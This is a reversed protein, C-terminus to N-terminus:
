EVSGEGEVVPLGTWLHFMGGISSASAGSLRFTEKLMAEALDLSAEADSLVLEDYCSTDALGAIRHGGFEITHAQSRFHVLENRRERLKAFGEAPDKQWAFSKGLIKPPWHRLKHDLGKPRSGDTPYLDEELLARFKAFKPDSVLTQFYINIFAEVATAGFVIAEVVLDKQETNDETSRAARVVRRLSRFFTWVM